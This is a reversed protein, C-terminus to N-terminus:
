TDQESICFVAVHVYDRMHLVSCVYAAIRRAKWAEFFYMAFISSHEICEKTAFRKFHLACPRRLVVNVLLVWEIKLPM